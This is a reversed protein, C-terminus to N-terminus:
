GRIVRFKEMWEGFNIMRWILSSFSIRGAITEELIPLAKTSLIGQSSDIARRLKSHFMDPAQEKIWTEEPTVFGMKDM